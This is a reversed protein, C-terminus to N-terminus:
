DGLRKSFFHRNVVVGAVLGTMVFYSWLLFVTIGSMAGYLANVKGFLRLYAWVGFTTLFVISLSLLAGLSLDKLKTKFPCVYKNLFVVAFYALLTTGVGTVTSTIVRARYTELYRNAVEKGFISLFACLVLVVFLGIISLIALIRANVTRRFKLDAGYIANGDKRMQHLLSSSSFIVVCVFLFTTGNSARKATEVLVTGGERLEEPLTSIFWLSLDVGFVGFATVFLFTLPLLASLFFFVWAGAVTTVRNKALALFLAKLNKRM